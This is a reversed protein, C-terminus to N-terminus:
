AEKLAEKQIISRLEAECEQRRKRHYEEADKHFDIVGELRWKYKDVTM